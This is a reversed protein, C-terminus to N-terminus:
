SAWWFFAFYRDAQRGRKKERNKGGEGGERKGRRRGREKRGIRGKGEM